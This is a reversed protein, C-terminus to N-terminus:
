DEVMKTVLAAASYLMKITRRIYNLATAVVAVYLPIVFTEVNPSLPLAALFVSLVALFALIWTTARLLLLMTDGYAPISTVSNLRGVKWWGVVITMAVISTGTLTGSIAGVGM